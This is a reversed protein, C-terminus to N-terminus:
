VFLVNNFITLIMNKNQFVLIWRSKTWESSEDEYVMWIGESEEIYHSSSSSVETTDAIKAPAISFSGSKFLLLLLLLNNSKL